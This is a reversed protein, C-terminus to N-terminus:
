HTDGNKPHCPGAITVCYSCPPHPVHAAETRTGTRTRFAEAFAPTYESPVLSM